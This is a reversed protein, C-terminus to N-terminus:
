GSKGSNRAKSVLNAFQGFGISKRRDKFDYECKSKQDPQSAHEEPQLGHGDLESVFHSWLQSATAEQHEPKQCLVKIIAGVTMERGRVDVKGRSKKARISQQARIKKGLAIDAAAEEMALYEFAHRKQDSAPPNDFTLWKLTCYPKLLRFAETPITGNPLRLSWSEFPTGANNHRFALAALQGDTMGLAKLESTIPQAEFYKKVKTAENM